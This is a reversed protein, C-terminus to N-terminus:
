RGGDQNALVTAQPGDTLGVWANVCCQLFFVFCGVAIAGLVTEICIEFLRQQRREAVGLTRVDTGVAGRSRVLRTM